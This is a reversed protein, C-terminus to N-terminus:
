LQSDPPRRVLCLYSAALASLHQAADAPSMSPLMLHSLVLRVLADAVLAVDAPDLEPRRTIMYDTLIHTAVALLSASRTTLLPLMSSPGTSGASLLIARLLPNKAGDDLTIRIASSLGAAIDDGHRDFHETIAAAFRNTERLVLAEGVGDKSGFEKYLTQRSVGVAYALHAIRLREWGETITVDYAADLVDDRLRQRTRERFNLGSQSNM